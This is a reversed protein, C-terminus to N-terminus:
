EYTDDTRDSSGIEGTEVAELIDYAPNKYLVEDCEKCATYLSGKQYWHDTREIIAEQYQGYHGGEYRVHDFETEHCEPCPDSMGHWDDRDIYEVELVADDALKLEYTEVYSTDHNDNVIQNM